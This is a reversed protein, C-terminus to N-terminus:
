FAGLLSCGDIMAQKEIEVPVQDFFCKLLCIAVPLIFATNAIALGMLSKYLGLQQFIVFLLM